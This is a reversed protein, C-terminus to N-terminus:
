PYLQRIIWTGNELSYLFRDHNRSLNGQWFEISVPTLLYGGWHDPRKDAQLTGAIRKTENEFFM